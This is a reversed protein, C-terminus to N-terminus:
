DSGRRVSPSRRDPDIEYGEVNETRERRVSPSRVDTAPSGSNSNEMWERGVSPSRLIVWNKKM